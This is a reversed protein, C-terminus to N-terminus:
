AGVLKGLESASQAVIITTNAILMIEEEHAMAFKVSNALKIGDFDTGKEKVRQLAARAQTSFDNYNQHQEDVKSVAKQAAYLQAKMKEAKAAVEPTNATAMKDVEDQLEKFKTRAEAMSKRSLINKADAVALQNELRKVIPSTSSLILKIKEKPGLTKKERNELDKRKKEQYKIAEDLETLTKQMEDLTNKYTKYETISRKAIASLVSIGAIIAGIVIPALAGGSLVTVLVGVGSAVLVLVSYALIRCVCKGGARNLKTNLKADVADMVKKVVENVAAPVM